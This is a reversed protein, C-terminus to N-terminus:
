YGGGPMVAMGRARVGGGVVGGGGVPAMANGTLGQSARRVLDGSMGQGDLEMLGGEAMAGALPVPRLQMYPSWDPARVGQGELGRGFASVGGAALAGAGPGKAGDLSAHIQSSAARNDAALAEARARDASGFSREWQAMAGGDARAGALRVRLAEAGALADSLSAQRPADPPIQVNYVSAISNPAPGIGGGQAAKPPGGLAGGAVTGATNAFTGIMQNTDATDQGKLGASLGQAQMNGQTYSNLANLSQGQAQNGLQGYGLRMANQQAQNASDLQGQAIASNQELGYQGQLQGGINGYVGAAQGLATAREQAGLQAATAAGQARMMAGQMAANRQAGAQAVAGGPTSNAAAMQAAISQDLGSQFQAKSAEGNNQMLTNALNQQAGINGAIGARSEGQFQNNIAPGAQTYNTALSGYTGAAQQAANREADYAAANPGQAKAVRKGFLGAFGGSRQTGAPAAAVTGASGPATM